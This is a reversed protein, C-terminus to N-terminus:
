RLRRRTTGSWTGAKVDISWNAQGLITPWGDHDNDFVVPFFENQGIGSSGGMDTWRDGIYVYTTSRSGAVPLILLNQTDFTNASQPV